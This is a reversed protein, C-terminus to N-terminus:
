KPLSRIWERIMEVAEQDIRNRGIQPMQGQGVINIRKLLVSRDPEGPAVLRADVLDLTHHNPKENIIKVKDSKALFELNMQANGGGAEVHCSSCNSHMFSRARDNLDMTKDYPNVLHRRKQPNEYFMKNSAPVKRQESTNMVGNVFSDLESDKLGDTKARARVADKFENGSNIKLVGL